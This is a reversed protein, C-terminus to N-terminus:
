QKIEKLELKREQIRDEMEDVLVRVQERTKEPLENIVNEKDSQVRNHIQEKKQELAKESLGDLSKLQNQVRKMEVKVEDPLEKVIQEMNRNTEQTYTSVTLTLITAIIITLLKKM